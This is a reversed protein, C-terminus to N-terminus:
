HLLFRIHIKREPHRWQWGVLPSLWQLFKVTSPLDWDRNRNLDRNSGNQHNSKLHFSKIQFMAIRDAM